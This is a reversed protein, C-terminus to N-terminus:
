EMPVNEVGRLRIGDTRWSNNCRIAAERRNGRYTLSGDGISLIVPREDGVGIKAGIAGGVGWGLSGGSPGLRWMNEYGFPLLAARATPNESVIVSNKPLQEAM